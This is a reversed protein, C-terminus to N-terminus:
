LQVNSYLQTSKAHDVLLPVNLAAPCIAQPKNSITFHFHSKIVSYQHKQFFVEPNYNILFRTCDTTNSSFEKLINIKM